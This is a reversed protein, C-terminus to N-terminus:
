LASQTHAVKTGNVAVGAIILSMGRNVRARAVYRPDPEPVARGTATTVISTGAERECASDDLAQTDESLEIRDLM